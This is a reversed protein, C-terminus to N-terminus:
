HYVGSASMFKKWNSRSRLAAESRASVSGDLMLCNATEAHRLHIEADAAGVYVYQVKSSIHLSDTVIVTDSANRNMPLNNYTYAIKSIRSRWVLKSTGWSGTLNPNMGYVQDNEYIGGVMKTYPLMPCSLNKYRNQKSNYASLRGAWKLGDSWNTGSGSIGNGKPIMPAPFFDGFDDAYSMFMVGTNKLNNVCSIALGKSKAANLAPLLLGALIAIISIVILLEILSFRCVAKRRSWLVARSLKLSKEPNEM